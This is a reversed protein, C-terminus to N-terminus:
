PIYGTKNQAIAAAIQAHEAASLHSNRYFVHQALLSGNGGTGSVRFYPYELTRWAGSNGTVTEAFVGNVYFDASCDGSVLDVDWNVTITNGQNTAANFPATTTYLWTDGAVGGFLIGINNGGAWAIKISDDGGPTNWALAFLQAASSNAYTAFTLGFAGTMSTGSQGLWSATMDGWGWTSAGLIAGTNCTDIVTWATTPIGATPTGVVQVLTNGNAADSLTTEAIGEDLPWHGGDGLAALATFTDSLADCQYGDEEVPETTIYVPVCGDATSCYTDVTLEISPVYMNQMNNQFPMTAFWREVNFGGDDAADPDIRYIRDTYQEAAYLKVGARVVDSVRWADGDAASGDYFSRREHWKQTSMDYVISTDALNFGVFYNGGMGYDWAVVSGPSAVNRIIQDIARTSIKRTQNGDLMWVAPLEDDGAGMFVLTDQVNTGSYLSAIGEDFFLGTRAFPFDTGGVNSFVEATRSGFVFLQNRFVLPVKVGDPDTEVSGFDLANWTLGDNLSSIIIKRGKTTCLFYGDIFCQVRPSGNTTTFDVDTIQTLTDPSKTFIYGDGEPELIMLQSESNVMTVRGTGSITGCDTLTEGDELRYLKSGLVFYPRGGLRGSGRCTNAANDTSTILELGHTTRLTEQQLSPLDEVVPYFNVCSQASAELSDSEYFGNAFPLPIKNPM